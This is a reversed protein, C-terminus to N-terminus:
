SLTNKNTNSYSEFSKKRSHSHDPKLNEKLKKTEQQYNKM